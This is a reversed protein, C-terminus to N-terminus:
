VAHPVYYMVEFCGQLIIISFFLYTTWNITIPILFNMFATALVAFGFIEYASFRTVLIGIPIQVIFYALCHVYYVVLHSFQTLQVFETISSRMVTLFILGFCAVLIVSFRSSFCLCKAKIHKDIKRLMPNPINNDIIEDNINYTEDKDKVIDYEKITM